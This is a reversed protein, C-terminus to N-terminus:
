YHVPIAARTNGAGYFILLIDLQFNIQIIDPTNISISPPIKFKIVFAFEM